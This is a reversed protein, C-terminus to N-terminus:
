LKKNRNSIVELFEDYDRIYDDPDYSHSAFVLLVADSSYKYQIGWTLPPLYFGLSPHDLLVERRNVGDDAVVSVSGHPAILFQHCEYHAHEGRVEQGPVGFVLFHRKPQFPLEKDFDGVTLNGRLDEVFNFRHLSANGVGFSVVSPAKDHVPSIKVTAQEAANAYGVIRAPNGVVKAFPPVSKTVVTGAGVMAMRGITIGPLITANAGISAGQCVRTELIPKSHDKSRPFLDNTFTANPGVFVDDEIRVGSWIQVGCKVTVRDGLRANGEIFVGDCINCDNGIIAGPLIHAFAWIKTGAGIQNTEVLSQHHAYM